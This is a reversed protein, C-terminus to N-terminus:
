DVGYSQAGGGPAVPYSGAGDKFRSVLFGGQGGPGGSLLARPTVLMDDARDVAHVYGNSM